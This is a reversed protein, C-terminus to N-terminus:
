RRGGSPGLGGPLRPRRLDRGPAAGPGGSNEGGPHRARAPQLPTPGLRAHSVQRQGIPPRSPELSCCDCGVLARPLLAPTPRAGGVRGRLRQPIRDGRAVARVLAARGPPTRVACAGRRGSLTRFLQPFLFFAVGLRLWGSRGPAQTTPESLRSGSSAGRRQTGGRLCCPAGLLKDSSINAIPNKVRTNLLRQHWDKMLAQERQECVRARGQGWGPHQRCPGSDCLCFNSGSGERSATGPVRGPLGSASDGM